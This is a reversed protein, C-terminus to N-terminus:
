EANPVGFDRSPSRAIFDPLIKPSFRCRLFQLPLMILYGVNPFVAIDLRNEGSIM